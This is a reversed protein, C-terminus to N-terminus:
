VVKDCRCSARNAGNRLREIEVEMEAIAVRNEENGAFSSGTSFTSLTGEESLNSLRTRIFHRAGATEQAALEEETEENISGLSFSVCACM